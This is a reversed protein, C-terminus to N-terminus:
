GVTNLGFAGQWATRFRHSAFWAAPTVASRTKGRGEMPYEGGFRNGPRKGRRNFRNLM